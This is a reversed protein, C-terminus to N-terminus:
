RWDSQKSDPFILEGLTPLDMNSFEMRDLEPNMGCKLITFHFRQPVPETEEVWHQLVLDVEHYIKGWGEMILNGTKKDELYEDKMRHTFIVNSDSEKAADVFWRMM